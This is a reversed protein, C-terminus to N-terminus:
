GPQAPATFRALLTKPSASLDPNRRLHELLFEVLTRVRVPLNRRSPYHIFLQAAETVWAPLVPVLAGARLLPLVLPLPAHVLGHGHLAAMVLTTIDNAVFNGAVAVPERLPGLRWGLGPSNGRGRLRLCNHHALDAPTLPVGAEALYQPAGCVVFHLPAIPRAVLTGDRLAGARIGVDFGDAVMDSVADDLQLEVQIAPYRRSFPALLPVVYNRGFPSLATVRVIGAPAAGKDQVAAHASELEQLPGICREYFVRGEDTLSLKRTSRRLLRVGLQQELRQVNKSVAVPTVRLERAAAAFSGAAVTKVFGIVGRISQM